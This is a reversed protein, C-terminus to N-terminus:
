MVFERETSLIREFDGDDVARTIAESLASALDQVTEGSLELLPPRDGSAFEFITLDLNSPDVTEIDTLPAVWPTSWLSPPLTVSGFVPQIIPQSSASPAALAASRRPM